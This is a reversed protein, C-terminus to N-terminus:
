GNRLPPKTEDVWYRYLTRAGHFVQYNGLCPWALTFGTASGPNPIAYMAKALYRQIDAVLGRRREADREVRAKEILADVQPDGSQDNKGNVSFGHFPAGGKSWYELALLGEAAGGGTGGGATSMYAWGEYQGHGDRYIPIYERVYDLTHVKNTIGIDAIMGDIASGPAAYPVEIGPQNSITEFGNPYGAASLLKKAEAVNHQFYMANPGFDKGKPDLWWSEQTNVLSSNWRSTVNM